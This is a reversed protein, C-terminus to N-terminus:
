AVGLAALLNRLQARSMFGKVRVAAVDGVYICTRTLKGKDFYCEVLKQQPEDYLCNKSQGDVIWANPIGVGQLWEETVPEDGDSPNAALYAQCVTLGDLYMPKTENFDATAYREAAARIEDSM